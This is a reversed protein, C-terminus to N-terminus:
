RATAAILWILAGSCFFIGIILGAIALGRGNGSRGAERLGLSSLVIGLIAMVLGVFPILGCLACVFGATALGNGSGSSPSHGQRPQIVQSM